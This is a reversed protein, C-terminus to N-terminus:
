QLVEIRNRLTDDEVIAGDTAIWQLLDTGVFVAEVFKDSNGTARYEACLEYFRSELTIIDARIQPLYKSFNEEYFPKTRAPRPTPDFQMIRTESM